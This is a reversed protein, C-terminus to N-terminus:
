EMEIEPEQPGLYIYKPFGTKKTVEENLIYYGPKMDVQKTKPKTQRQKIVKPEEFDADEEDFIKSSASTSASTKVFHKNHTYGSEEEIFMTCTAYTMIALLITFLWFPMWTYKSSDRGIGFEKWDGSETFMLDPRIYLTAFVIILYIIGAILFTKM